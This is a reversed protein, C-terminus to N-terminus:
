EFYVKIYESLILVDLTQIFEIQVAVEHQGSSLEIHKTEGAAIRGVAENDVLIKFKRVLNTADVKRIITLKGEPRRSDIVVNQELKKM